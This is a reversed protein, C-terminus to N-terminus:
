WVTLAKSSASLSQGLVNITIIMLPRLPPNLPTDVQM